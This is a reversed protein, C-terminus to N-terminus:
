RPTAPVRLARLTIWCPVALAPLAVLDTADRAFAVRWLGPLADGRALALLAGFPWQLAGLGVRYVEAGLVSTKVWAFVVGTVVVAGLVLARARARPGLVLECLSALFLPFFVLGAFDSLKGTVVGPVARKLLHDNILLLAIAALAVPHLLPVSPATSRPLALTSM